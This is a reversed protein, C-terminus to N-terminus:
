RSIWGTFVYQTTTIGRRTERLEAQLAAQRRSRAQDRNRRASGPSSFASM